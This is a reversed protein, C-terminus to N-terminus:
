VGQGYEIIVWGASGDYLGPSSGAGGSGYSTGNSNTAGGGGRASVGLASSTGGNVGPKDHSSGSAGGYGVVVTYTTSPSVSVTQTILEGSGGSYGIFSYVSGGGGGGAITVKAYTVGIPATWTYTGASRYESKDYPAIDSSLMAFQSGSHEKVRGLSARSDTDSVLPIYAQVGDVIIYAYALGAEDKTSYLKVIQETSGKKIHLKKNLEAMDICGCKRVM